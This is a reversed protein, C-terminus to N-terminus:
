WSLLYFIVNTSSYIDSSVTHIKLLKQPCINAKILPIQKQLQWQISFLTTFIDTDFYYLELLWGYLIIKNKKNVSHKYPYM